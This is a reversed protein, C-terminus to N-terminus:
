PKPPTPDSPPGKGSSQSADSSVRQSHEDQLKKLDAGLDGTTAANLMRRWSPYKTKLNQPLRSWVSKANDVAALANQLDLGFDTETFTGKLQQPPPAGGVGFRALLKNIDAEDKFEQRAMDRDKSCDLAGAASYAEQRDDAQTREAKPM